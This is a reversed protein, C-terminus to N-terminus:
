KNYAYNIVDEPVDAESSLSEYKDLSDTIKAYLVQKKSDDKYYSIYIYGGKFGYINIPYYILGDIDTFNAEVKKVNSSSSTLKYGVFGGKEYFLYVYEDTLLIEDNKSYEDIKFLKKYRNSSNEKFLAFQKKEESEEDIAIAYKDLIVGKNKTIYGSDIVKTPESSNCGVCIVSILLILILNLIKKM